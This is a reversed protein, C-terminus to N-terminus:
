RRILISIKLSRSAGLADKAAVYVVYRGARAPRGGIVGTRTDLHLGTPLKGRPVSWTRAGFGGLASVSARYLKGVRGVRPMKAGSLRLKDAVQLTITHVTTRGRVDTVTFKLAFTGFEAPVGKITATSGNGQNGIFGVKDPLSGETLEWRYPATGGGAHLEIALPVAVEAVRSAPADIQLAGGVQLTFEKQSTAGGASVKVTFTANGASTPTGSLVGNPGLSLGAPLSGATITWSKTASGSAAFTLSYPSGASAEPLSGTTISISQGPAPAPPPSGGGSGNITISFERQAESPRCWDASPPNQDSLNVWFSWSGAQTPTGSILGSKALTLGPPLSGGLLNYQYPLAPGCGGAGGFTFSYPSGVAGVPTFYSEDTFRLAWAAATFVLAAVSVSLLISVRRRM